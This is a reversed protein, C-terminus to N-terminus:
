ENGSILGNNFINTTPNTPLCYRSVLSPQMNILILFFFFSLTIFLFLCGDTHVSLHLHFFIPFLFLTQVVTTASSNLGIYNRWSKTGNEQVFQKIISGQLHVTKALASRSQCVIDNDEKFFGSILLM